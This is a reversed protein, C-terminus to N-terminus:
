LMGKGSLFLLPIIGQLSRVTLVGASSSPLKQTAKKTRLPYLLILLNLMAREAKLPRPLTPIYLGGPARGKMKGNPASAICMNAM